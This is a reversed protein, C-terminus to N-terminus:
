LGGGVQCDKFNNRPDRVDWGPATYYNAYHPKFISLNRESEFSPNASFIHRERPLGGAVKRFTPGYIITPTMSM